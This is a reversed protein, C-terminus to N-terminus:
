FRNEAIRNELQAPIDLNIQLLAPRGTGLDAPPGGGDTDRIGGELPLIRQPQQVPDRITITEAGINM